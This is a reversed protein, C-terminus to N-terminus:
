TTGNWGTSRRWWNCRVMPWPSRAASSSIRCSTVTMILTRHLAISPKRRFAMRQSYTGTLHRPVNLNGPRFGTAYTFYYLQNDAPHWAINLKPSVVTDDKGEPTASYDQELDTFRAGLTFEWDEGMLYTAEGFVSIERLEDTHINSPGQFLPDILPALHERGAAYGM